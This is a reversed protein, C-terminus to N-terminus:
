EPIHPPAPGCVVEHPPFYFHAMTFYAEIDDVPRVAGLEGPVEVCYDEAMVGIDLSKTYNIEHNMTQSPQVGDLGRGAAPCIIDSARRYHWSRLNNGLALILPM